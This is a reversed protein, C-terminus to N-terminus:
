TGAPTVSTSNAHFIGVRYSKLACQIPLPLLNQSPVSQKKPPSFIDVSFSPCTKANQWLPLERQTRDQQEILWVCSKGLKISNLRRTTSNKTEVSGAYQKVNNKAFIDTPNKLNENAQIAIPPVGGPLTFTFNLLIKRKLGLSSYYVTGSPLLQLATCTKTSFMTEGYHLYEDSELIGSTDLNAAFNPHFFAEASNHTLGETSSCTENSLYQSSIKGEADLGRALLRCDDELVLWKVRFGTRRNAVPFADFLKRVRSSNQETSAYLALTGDNQLAFATTNEAVNNTSWLKRRTKKEYLVVNGDLQHILM